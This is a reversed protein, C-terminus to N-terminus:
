QRPRQRLASDDDDDVVVGVSLDRGGTIISVSSTMM